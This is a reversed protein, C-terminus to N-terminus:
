LKSLKELLELAIPKVEPRCARFVEVVRENQYRESGTSVASFLIGMDCNLVMCISALVDITPHVHGNEIKSLYVVTIDVQEAVYEQTLKAAVRRDRLRTGILKYDVVSM